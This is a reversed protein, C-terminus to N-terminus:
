HGSLAQRIEEDVKYLNFREETIRIGNIFWQNNEPNDSFEIAPGDERHRKGNKYYEISNQESFVFIEILNDQRDNYTVVPKGTDIVKKAFFLVRLKEFFKM